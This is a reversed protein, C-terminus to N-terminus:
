LIFLSHELKAAAPSMMIVYHRKFMVAIFCERELVDM